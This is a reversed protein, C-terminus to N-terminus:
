IDIKTYGVQVYSMEILDVRVNVLTHDMRITVTRMNTATIARKVSTLM